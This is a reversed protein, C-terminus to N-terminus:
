PAPAPPLGFAQELEEMSTVQDAPPPEITVSQGFDFFDFIMTMVGTTGTADDTEEGTIAMRQVLGDGDVWLDLPFSEDPLGGQEELEALEEPSLAEQWGEEVTVRFHTTSIGRIEETGLEEVTGEAKSFAELFSSPNSPAAESGMEALDSGEEAPMSVWETEAGMLATFFPFKLYVTDGIQRMEIEGLMGAMGAMEDDAGAGLASFDMTMAMNGTAADTLVTFPMEATEGDGEFIMVGEVRAPTAEASTALAAQLAALDGSLGGGSSETTSPASTTDPAATTDVTTAVTTEPTTAATTDAASTTTDEAQGGCAAVVVALVASILLRRKM